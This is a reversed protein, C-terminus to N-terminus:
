DTKKVSFNFTKYFHNRFLRLVLYYLTLSALATIGSLWEALHLISTVVLIGIVLVFPLIYGALLAKYGMNGSMSIMVSDGPRFMNENAIAEIIRESSDSMNCIGKVTCNGCASQPQIRIRIRNKTVEEVTGRQEICVSSNM